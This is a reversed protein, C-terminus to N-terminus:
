YNDYHLQLHVLWQVSSMAKLPGKTGSTVFRKHDGLMLAVSM